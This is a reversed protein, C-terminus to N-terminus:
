AHEKVSCVTVLFCRTKKKWCLHLMIMQTGLLIFWELDDFCLCTMLM